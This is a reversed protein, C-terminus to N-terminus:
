EILIMVMKVQFYQLPVSPSVQPVMSSPQLFIQGVPGGGSQGISMSSMSQGIPLNPVSGSEGTPVLQPHASTSTSQPPNCCNMFFAISILKKKTARYTIIFPTWAM